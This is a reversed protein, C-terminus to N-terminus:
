QPVRSTSSSDPQTTPPATLLAMLRLEPSSPGLPSLTFIVDEDDKDEDAPTDSDNGRIHSGRHGHSCCDLHLLPLGHGRCRYNSRSAAAAEGKGQAQTDEQRGAKTPHATFFDVRPGDGNLIELIYAFMVRKVMAVPIPSPALALCQPSHIDWLGELLNSATLPAAQQGNPM